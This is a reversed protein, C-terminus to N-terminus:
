AAGDNVSSRAPPLARLMGLARYGARNRNSTISM